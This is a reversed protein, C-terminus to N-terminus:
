SLIKAYLNHGYKAFNEFYGSFWQNLSISNELSAKFDEKTSIGGTRIVIFEDKPYLETLSQKAIKCLELSRNKLLEGSFGGGFKQTFYQFNSKERGKLFQSYYEYDTSTNGFNIGDYGLDVLLRVLEPVQEYNTDVSFKVIVPLLRSKKKLFNSSIWELREILKEDIISNSNQSHEHPVNPCSENLEIFDAQTNSFIEFGRLVGQLADLGKAIPDAAISVGIPCGTHKEIHQVRNAVEDFGTNPLGLWNLATGSNPLPIFPLYFSNKRNGKRYNPTVTGILFAGAGQRYALEYGNGEKFIGAANFIPSQFEIGFIKQRYKEPISIKEKPPSNYLRNLFWRRGYSYIHIICSPPLKTTISRLSYDLKALTEVFM